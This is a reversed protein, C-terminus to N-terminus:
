HIATHSFGPPASAANRQHIEGVVEDDDDDDEDDDDDDGDDDGDNDRDDDNGDDDDYINPRPVIEILYISYEQYIM